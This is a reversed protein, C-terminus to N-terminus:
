RLLLEALHKRQHMPDGFQTQCWLARRLYLQADCEYTFGFGGHFQVARDGGFAFAECSAAKAMRLAVEAEPTGYVTASHYLHSRARELGILVDVTPHKLAQYSGIPRDFQIRSKLYDVIVELVGAAGGCAESSVLLLAAHRVAVLAERASPGSILCGADVEVGELALRYSRRTEDIVVERSRAREPIRDAEVFLVAPGAIGPGGDFHVSIAFLDAVGADLVFRKEGSLRVTGGSESAECRSSELDWGGDAEVVALSAMAGEALRPLWTEQLEELGEGGNMLAQVVLQTSFFPSSFLHRGMPEVIAVLETMGFGSGGHAEPIVMGNWGVEVMEAWVEADFGTETEILERVAEVSSKERFFKAAIGQLLAQEKGFVIDNM